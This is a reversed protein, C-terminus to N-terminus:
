SQDKNKLLKSKFKDYTLGDAPEGCRERTAVFERFVDQFHREEDLPGGAAAGIVSSVKPAASTVRPSLGPREGTAGSSGTQRAAKILEAPVAAVRTADPNYDGEGSQQEEQSLQATAMAFPDM